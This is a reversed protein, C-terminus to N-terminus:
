AVKRTMRTKIERVGVKNLLSLRTVLVVALFDSLETFYVLFSLVM